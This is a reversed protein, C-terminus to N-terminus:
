VLDRSEELMPRNGAIAYASSTETCKSDVGRSNGCNSFSEVVTTNFGDLPVELFDALKELLGSSRIRDPTMDETKFVMVSKSDDAAAAAAIVRTFMNAIRDRYKGILEATPGFRDSGALLMEHFLEPSRYQNEASAWDLVSAEQM